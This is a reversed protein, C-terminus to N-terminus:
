KLEVSAGANELEEKLAEADDKSVGEKVKANGEEVMAKAEKLGLGTAARVAKIVNIKNDGFGTLIVDFETQEAEAPAEDGGGGGVPGAMMVAGGGAPKIGYADELYDALEKAQVLTLGAIKDGMEKTEASFEKAEAPADAEATAM